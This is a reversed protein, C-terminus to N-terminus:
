KASSSRTLAVQLPNGGPTVQGRWPEFGNASITAGRNNEPLDAPLVLDFRGDADTTASVGAVTARAQPLPMGHEDSVEGLLHLRKARVAVYVMEQSLKVTAASDALEYNDSELVIAVERDRMDAPIGVFRVEGKAGISESRRDAGLDLSVEGKNRLPVIHHGSEGHVFVTVDFRQKPEPVLYFGLIPVLVMVAIPGRLEITGGLVKGTYRAYSKFLSFMTIAAALGLFVLLVYWVNGTLGLRVLLDAYRLMVFLLFFGAVAAVAAVLLPLTTNSHQPKNM